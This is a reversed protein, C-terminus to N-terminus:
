VGLIEPPLRMVSDEVRDYSPLLNQTIQACIKVSLRNLIFRNVTQLVPVVGVALTDLIWRKVWVLTM